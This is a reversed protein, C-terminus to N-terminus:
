SKLFRHVELNAYSAITGILLLEPPLAGVTESLSIDWTQRFLVAQTCPHALWCGFAELEIIAVCTSTATRSLSFVLLLLSQTWFQLVCGLFSFLQFFIISLFWRATLCYKWNNSAWYCYHYRFYMQVKYILVMLWFYYCGIHRQIVLLFICGLSDVVTPLLALM